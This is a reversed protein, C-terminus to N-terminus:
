PSFMLHRHVFKLYQGIVKVKSRTRVGSVDDQHDNRCFLKGIDGITPIFNHTPCSELICLSLTGVTVKVKPRAVGNKCLVCQRTKIIMEALYNEFGVM